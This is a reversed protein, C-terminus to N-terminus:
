FSEYAVQGDVVAALVKTGLIEELPVHMIDCNLVVFDATFRPALRGCRDGGRISHRVDHWAFGAHADIGGRPVGTPISISSCTIAM